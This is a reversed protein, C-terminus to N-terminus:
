FNAGVTFVMGDNVTNLDAEFEGEEDEAHIATNIFRYGLGLHLWKYDYTLGADLDIYSASNDEYGAYMGCVQGRFGFGYALDMAGGLGLVPVPLPLTENEDVHGGTVDETGEYGAEIIYLQTGWVLGLRGRDKNLFDWEDLISIRDVAYTTRLPADATLEYGGFEITRSLLNTGSYDVHYYGLSLRHNPLTKFWAQVEFVDQPSDLGLDDEMDLKDGIVVGTDGVQDVDRVEADGSFGAIWYNVSIGGKYEDEAASARSCAIMAVMVAMWIFARKM